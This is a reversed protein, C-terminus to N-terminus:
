RRARVVVTGAAKDQLTQKVPNGLPWLATTVLAALTLVRAISEAAPVPGFVHHFEILVAIQTWLTVLVFFTLVRRGAQASTPFAGSTRDVARVRVALMGVTQGKYRLLFYPYGLTILVSIIVVAAQAAADLHRGTTGPITGAPQSQVIVLSAIFVPTDVIVADILYGGLRLWWGALEAVGSALEVQPRVSAQPQPPSLPPQPQPTGVHETWRAGDWWRQVPQGTPDPYWGPPPLSPPPPPPSPWTM